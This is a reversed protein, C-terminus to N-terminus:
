ESEPKRCGPITGNSASEQLMLVASGLELWCWRLRGEDIWKRTTSFRPVVYLRLSEEMDAVWFLPLAQKVNIAAKVDLSM